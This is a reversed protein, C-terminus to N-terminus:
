GGWMGEKGGWGMEVWLQNHEEQLQDHMANLDDYKEHVTSVAESQATKLEGRSPLPGGHMLGMPQSRERTFLISRTHDRSLGGLLSSVPYEQLSSPFM